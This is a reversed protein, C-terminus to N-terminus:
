AWSLGLQGRHSGQGKDVDMCRCVIRIVSIREKGAEMRVQSQGYGREKNTVEITDEM